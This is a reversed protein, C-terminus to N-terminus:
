GDEGQTSGGMDELTIAKPPDQAKEVVKELLKKLTNLESDLKARRKKIKKIAEEIEGTKPRDETGLYNTVGGTGKWYYYRDKRLLAM